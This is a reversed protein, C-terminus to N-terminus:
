SLKMQEHQLFASLGERWHPLPAGMLESLKNTSLISYEPRPAPTPYEVSPIAVVSPKAVILGYEHALEFIAEAFRHWSTDGTSSCHYIGWPLTREEKFRRVLFLVTNVIDGVYTPRGFQDNVVSLEDRVAGVRLMTKVFNNGQEGFVWSTRLIIYSTLSNQIAKEGALKTLGYVGLPNVADDEVYPQRSTGDFVYDTSLHILPVSLAECAEAMVAVSQHNVLDALVKEEEAKDVATYACANIVIDPCHKHIYSSVLNPQAFDVDNRTLACLDYGAVTLATACDSGVQGASGFLMVKM